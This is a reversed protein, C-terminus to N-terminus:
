TRTDTSAQWPNADLYRLYWPYKRIGIVYPGCINCCPFAKIFTSWYAFFHLFFDGSQKLCEAGLFIGWQTQLQRTSSSFEFLFEFFYNLVKSILSIVILLKGVKFLDQITHLLGLLLFLFLFSGLSAWRWILISKQLSHIVEKVKLKPRGILMATIIWLLLARAVNCCFYYSCRWTRKKGM